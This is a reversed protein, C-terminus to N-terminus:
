AVAAQKKIGVTIHFPYKNKPLGYKKRLKDLYPCEIVLVFYEEGPHQPPEVLNCSKVRFHVETGVEQVHGILNHEQAELAYVVSIHAGHLEPGFYAPSAFGEACILPLINKIYGDDVDIYTFGYRDQKLTGQTTLHEFAYELVKEYNVEGAFCTSVLFLLSLLYKM